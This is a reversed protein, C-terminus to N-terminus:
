TLICESNKYDYDILIDIRQSKLVIVVVPISREQKRYRGKNQGTHCDPAATSYLSMMSVNPKSLLCCTACVGILWTEQKLIVQNVINVFLDALFWGKNITSRICLKPHFALLCVLNSNTCLYSICITLSADFVTEFYEHRRFSFKQKLLYSVKKLRKDLNNSFIKGQLNLKILYFTKM